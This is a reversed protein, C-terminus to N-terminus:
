YQLFLRKRGLVGKKTPIKSSNLMKVIENMSKGSLYWSYVSKVIEAEKSVIQLFGNQYECGFPINFGSYGIKEVRLKM